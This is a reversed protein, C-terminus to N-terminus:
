CNIPMLYWNFVDSYIFKNNISSNQVWCGMGRIPMTQSISMTVSIVSLTIILFSILLIKSYNTKM